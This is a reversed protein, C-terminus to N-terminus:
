SVVVCNRGGAKARYLAADARLQVRDFGTDEPRLGAVGISVTLSREVGDAAKFCAQEVAHRLTQAQIAAETPDCGPLLVAFEEGGLRGITAGPGMQATMVETLRCIARDGAAHGWTDNVKKFHDIDLLLVSLPTGQRWAQVVEEAATELLHRRNFVGTLPDTVALRHMEARQRLATRHSRLLAFALLLLALYGLGMQLARHRWDALLDERDLGVLVLLPIKEIKSIGFVRERGDFPSRAIVSASGRTEGFSPQGPPAPARVGIAGPLLPSRALLTDNGDVVALVDNRGIPFEELWNQAFSLDIAALAGAVLRGDADVINRSVLLVPRHTASREVPMYQIYTDSSVPEARDRCFSQNSRFGILKPNAAAMFVCDAGYFSIGDLGEVSQSKEGLLRITQEQWGPADTQPATGAPVVRGLIDRLVYDTSLITTGFWQSMFQSKQQVLDRKEAIIRQQSAHLDMGLWVAGALFGLAM